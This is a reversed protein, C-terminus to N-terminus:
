KFYSKKQFFLHIIINWYRKKRRTKMTLSITRSNERDEDSQNMFSRLTITIRLDKFGIIFFKKRTLNWEIYKSFFFQKRFKIRELFEARISFVLLDRPFWRPVARPPRYQEDWFLRCTDRRCWKAQNWRCGYCPFLRNHQCKVRLHFSM